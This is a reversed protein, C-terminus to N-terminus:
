APDHRQVVEGSAVGPRAVARFAQETPRWTACRTTRADWSFFRCPPRSACLWCCVDWSDATYPAGGPALQPDRGGKIDMGGYQVCHSGGAPWNAKYLAARDAKAAPKAVFVPRVHLIPFGTTGNCYNRSETVSFGGFKAGRAAPDNLGVSYAEAFPGAQRKGLSFSSGEGTRFTLSTLCGHASGSSAGLLDLSEGAPLEVTGADKLRPELLPGATGAKIVIPEEDGIQYRQWMSEICGSRPSSFAQISVLRAGAVLVGEPGVINEGDPCTLAFSSFPRRLPFRPKPYWVAAEGDLPADLGPGLPASEPLLKAGDAADLAAVAASVTTSAPLKRPVANSPQIQIVPTGSSASCANKLSRVHLGAIYNKTSWTRVPVASDGEFATSELSLTEWQQGPTRARVEIKTICGFPTRGGSTYVSLAVATRGGDLRINGVSALGEAVASGSRLTTSKGAAPMALTQELTELCGTKSSEYASLEVLRWGEQTYRTVNQLRLENSCSGFRPATKPGFGQYVPDLREEDFPEQPAIGSCVAVALLLLGLVAHQRPGM